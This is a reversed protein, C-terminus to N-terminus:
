SAQFPGDWNVSRRSSKPHGERGCNEFSTLGKHSESIGERRRVELLNM